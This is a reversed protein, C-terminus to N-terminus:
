IGFRSFVSLPLKKGFNDVMCLEGQELNPTNKFHSQLLTQAITSSYGMSYLNLILFGNKKDIIQHCNELLENLSDELIWREGDPGRGYAPPDIVIGQYVNGRKAERKVFKLADEVVWKVDSLQSLQRNENSWTIVQKVSDVHVVDAGAAKAALSAGGTYAFLNLVQPRTSKFVDSHGIKKVKEYIYNWNEAQEPFLGIHKFATMGLRFQLSMEKYQYNVKWQDPMNKKLSWSGKEPSTKDREFHANAKENWEKESLQPTWIAQPEPRSLVFAGFRELKYQNGCDLLEYDKGFEPIHINSM